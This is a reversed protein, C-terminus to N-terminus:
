FTIVLGMNQFDIKLVIGQENVAYPVFNDVTFVDIDRIEDPLMDIKDFLNCAEMLSITEGTKNFVKVKKKPSNLVEYSKDSKKKLFNRNPRTLEIKGNDYLKYVTSTHPLIEIYNTDSEGHTKGIPKFDQIYVYAKHDSNNSIIVDRTRYIACGGLLVVVLVVLFIKKM